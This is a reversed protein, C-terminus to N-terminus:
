ALINKYINFRSHILVFNFLVKSIIIIAWKRLFFSENNWSFCKAWVCEHNTSHPVRSKKCTHYHKSGANVAKKEAIEQQLLEITQIRRTVITKKCEEKNRLSEPFLVRQTNVTHSVWSYVSIRLSFSVNEHYRRKGEHKDKWRTNADKMKTVHFPGPKKSHNEWKWTKM